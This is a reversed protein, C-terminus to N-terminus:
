LLHDLRRAEGSAGGAAGASPAGLAGRFPLRQFWSENGFHLEIVKGSSTKAVSGSEQAPPRFFIGLLACYLLYFAFVAGREIKQSKRPIDFKRRGQYEWNNSACFCRPRIPLCAFLERGRWSRRAM